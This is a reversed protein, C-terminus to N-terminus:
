GPTGCGASWDPLLHGLPAAVWSRVQIDLEGERAQSARAPAARSLCPRAWGPRQRSTSRFLFSVQGALQIGIRGARRFEKGSPNRYERMGSPPSWAQQRRTPGTALRSTVAPLALGSQRTGSKPVKRLIQAPQWPITIRDSVSVQFMSTSRCTKSAPHGGKHWPQPVRTRGDEFSCLVCEINLCVSKLCNVELVAHKLQFAVGFTVFGLGSSM